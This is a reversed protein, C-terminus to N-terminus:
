REGASEQRLVSIRLKRATQWHNALDGPYIQPIELKEGIAGQYQRLMRVGDQRAEALKEPRDSKLFCCCSILVAALYCIVIVRRMKEVPMMLLISALAPTLPLLAELHRYDVAGGRMCAIATCFVGCWILLVTSKPNEQLLSQRCRWLVAAAGGAPVLFLLCQLCLGWVPLEPQLLFMGRAWSSCIYFLIKGPPPVGGCDASVYGAFFAANGAATILSILAIRIWDGRSVAGGKRRMMWVERCLWIGCILDAFLPTMSFISLLLSVALVAGSRWGAKMLFGAYIAIMGFCLMFHFQNQGAWLLNEHPIDSFFPLFFLPFPAFKRCEELFLMMVTAAMIMYLVYNGLILHYYNLDGLLYSGHLLLRTFVIRHQVHVAALDRWHGSDATQLLDWDDGVPVDVALMCVRSFNWVVALLLIGVSLFRVQKGTLLWNM